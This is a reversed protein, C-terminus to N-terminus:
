VGFTERWKAIAEPVAKELREAKNRYSKVKDIPVGAPAAVDAHLPYNFTKAMAASYERTYFFNVFLRAAKPHPANKLIAVPSVILIADDTPFTIDIPNGLAKRELSLNEPGAGVVREGSVIDTVTDNISRGIKPKNKALKTFYDWGYKDWIAVVWNGVYGSFGPHGVTIKGQWKDDLLDTWKHPRGELNPRHNLLVLGIAGPHYTGDPDMQFSKALQAVGPPTYSALVNQRKLTLYHAEDTSCFVDVERVGAKINQSLRQYVVQATQRIFQVEVGPYKAVFADRAAEAASLAYHATWWTVKGEKRAEAYLKEEGEYPAALAPSVGLSDLAAVGLAGIGLQLFGRRIIKHAAAAPKGADDISKSM